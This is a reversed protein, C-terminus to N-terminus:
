GADVKAESESLYRYLTVKSIHYEHVLTRIPTGQQRRVHVRAKTVDNAYFILLAHLEGPTFSQGTPLRQGGPAGQVDRMRHYTEASIYGLRWSERAVGRVAALTLDVTAPALGRNLLQARIAVVHAYGLGAWPLEDDRLGVQYVVVGVTLTLAVVIVLTLQHTLWVGTMGCMMDPLRAM